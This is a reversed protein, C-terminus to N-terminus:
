RFPHPPLGGVGWDDVVVVEELDAFTIVLGGIPSFAINTPFSGRGISFEDVQDGHTTWTQISGIGGDLSVASIVLNGNADFALGDPQGHDLHVVPVPASLVGGDITAVYVVAEKTSALFLRNDPGFALGNPFWPVSMLLESHGTKSDIRWIRGDNMMMSRTPDTVYLMGDPGFQLDNPSIPDQNLWSIAGDPGIRQVGCVAPPFAPGDWIRRGGNQALYLVGAKDITAGNAGGGTDAFLESKGDAGIRFVGGTTISTVYLTGDGAFVPGEIFGLGGSAITRHTRM